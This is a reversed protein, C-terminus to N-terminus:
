ALARPKDVGHGAVSCGSKLTETPHQHVIAIADHSDPTVARPVGPLPEETTSWHYNKIGVPLGLVGPQEPPTIAPLEPSPSTRALIRVMPLSLSAETLAVYHQYIHSSACSGYISAMCIRFRGFTQGTVSTLLMEADLPMDSFPGLSVGPLQPALVRLDTTLLRVRYVRPDGLTARPEILYTNPDCSECPSIRQGTFTDQVVLGNIAGDVTGAEATMLVTWRDSPFDFTCEGMELCDNELEVFLLANTKQWSRSYTAQDQEIALTAYVGEATGNVIELEMVARGQELPVGELLPALNNGPDLNIEHLSGPGMAEAVNRVQLPAALPVHQWCYRVPVSEVGVENAGRVEIEIVGRATALSPVQSRLVVVEYRVGNEVTGTAQAPLWETLWGEADGGIDSASQRLRLRYMGAEADVRATGQSVVEFQWRIANDNPDDLRHTFKHLVPCVIAGSGPEGLTVMLDGPTQVPIGREDFAIADDLEDYVDTPLMRAIPPSGLEEIGIVKGCACLQSAVMIACARQLHSSM